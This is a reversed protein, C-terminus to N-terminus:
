GHTTSLDWSTGAPLDFPQKYKEGSKLNTIFSALNEVTAMKMTSLRNMNNLNWWEKVKNKKFVLTLNPQKTVGVGVGGRSSETQSPISSLAQSRSTWGRLSWRTFSFSKVWKDLIERNRMEGAKAVVMQRQFNSYKLFRWYM